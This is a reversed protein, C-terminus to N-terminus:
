HHSLLISSAVVFMLLLHIKFNRHIRTPGKLAWPNERQHQSLVECMARFHEEVSSGQWDDHPIMPVQLLMSVNMFM